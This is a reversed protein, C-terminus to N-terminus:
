INILHIKKNFLITYQTFSHSLVKNEESKKKYQLSIKIELKHLAVFSLKYERQICTM